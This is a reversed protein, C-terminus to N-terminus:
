ALFLANENRKDRAWSCPVKMERIKERACMHSFIVFIIFPFCRGRPGDFILGKEDFSKDPLFYGSVPTVIVRFLPM